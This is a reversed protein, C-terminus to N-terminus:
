VGEETTTKATTKTKAKAVAVAEARLGFQWRKRSVVEDRRNGRFDADLWGREVAEVDAHITGHGTFLPSKLAEVEPLAKAFARFVAALGDAELIKPGPPLGLPCAKRGIYLTFHPRALSRALDELPHPAAPRAWLAVSFRADCRYERWSLITELNPEALEARRTAWRKGKRAPPVQATHFDTLLTGPADAQVAFGYGAMLAQQSAEEARDIGLAAAVLGIVASKGPRDLGYRREGVAVDGMSALPAWLSFVLFSPM